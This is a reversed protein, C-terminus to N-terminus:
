QFVMGLPIPLPRGKLETKHFDNTILIEFTAVPADLLFVHYHSVTLKSEHVELLGALKVREMLRYGKVKAIWGASEGGFHPVVWEAGFIDPNQKQPTGDRRTAHCYIIGAARCWEAMEPTRMYFLAAPRDELPRADTSLEKPRTIYDAPAEKVTNHTWYRIRSLQTFRDSQHKLIDRLFSGLSKLCEENGPKLVFAGVGPVLEHFKTMDGRATDSGPYLVYSGITQRVADNYTHMKLLDGRRYTSITKGSVKEADIEEDTEAPDGFLESISQARYKADFHVFAIQGDKAAAAETTYSAPFIAITYDPKFRRSYSGASAASSNVAFVREYYLNLNLAIGDDVEEHYTFKACSRKSRKLNIILEEGQSQLFAEPDSSPSPLGGVRAVGALSDLLSHLKLFIWYEYLTAVDRSPGSAAENNGDWTLSLAAEVLIWTQLIDRYGHKKQLTQNDLPLRTLPSLERFFSRGLIEELQTTMAEADATISIAEPHTAIVKLCLRLFSELAFKLFQNPPTDHSDYRRVHLVAAPIYGGRTGCWWDRAMVAPNKLWDNSGALTVPTWETESKLATHPRQIISELIGELKENDLSGRLFLFQELLLKGQRDVDTEFRLSTPSEWNLLLQQCFDAIETTLQRFETDYDLKKSVLELGIALCGRDSVVEFTSIGLYNIVQFRGHTEGMRHSWGPGRGNGKLHSRIEVTQSGTVKWDYPITEVLRVIGNTGFTVPPVSLDSVATPRGRLGNNLDIFTIDCDPDFSENNHSEGIVLWSGSEDGIPFAIASFGEM